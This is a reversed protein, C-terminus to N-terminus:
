VLKAQNVLWNEGVLWCILKGGTKKASLEQFTWEFFYSFYNIIIPFDM